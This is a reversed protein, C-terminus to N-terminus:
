IKGPGFGSTLTKVYCRATLLRLRCLALQFAQHMAKANM